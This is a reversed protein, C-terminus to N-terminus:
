SGERGASVPDGQRQTPFVHEQEREVNTLDGLHSIKARTWADNETARTTSRTSKMNGTAKIEYSSSRGNAFSPPCTRWRSFLM